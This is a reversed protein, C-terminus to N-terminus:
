TCHTSAKDQDNTSCPNLMDSLVFVFLELNQESFLLAIYMGCFVDALLHECLLGVVM